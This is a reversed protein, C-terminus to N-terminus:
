RARVAVRRHLTLHGAMPVCLSDLCFFFLSETKGLSLVKTGKQQFLNNRRAASVLVRAAHAGWVDTNDTGDTTTQNGLFNTHM